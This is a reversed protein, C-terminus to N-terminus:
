LSTTRQGQSGRLHLYPEFGEREKGLRRAREPDRCVSWDENDGVTCGYLNVFAFIRVGTGLKVDPAM